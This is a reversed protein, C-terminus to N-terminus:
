CRGRTLHRDGRDHIGAVSGPSGLIRIVDRGDIRETCGTPLNQTVDVATVAASCLLRDDVVDVFVVRSSCRRRFRQRRSPWYLDRRSARSSGRCRRDRSISRGSRPPSPCDPCSSSRATDKHPGSGVLQHDLFVDAGGVRAVHWRTPIEVVIAGVEDMQNVGFRRRGRHQGVEAEGDLRLAPPM